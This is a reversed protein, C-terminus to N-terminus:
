RTWTYSVDVLALLLWGVGTAILAGNASFIFEAGFVAFVEAIALVVSLQFRHVALGDTCVAM